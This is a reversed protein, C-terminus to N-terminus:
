VAEFLSTIEKGRHLTKEIVYPQPALKELIYYCKRNHERGQFDIERDKVAKILLESVVSKSMQMHNRIDELSVLPNERIFDLLKQKM